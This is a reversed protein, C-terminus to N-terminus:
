KMEDCAKSITAIAFRVRRSILSRRHSWGCRWRQALQSAFCSACKCVPRPGSRHRSHSCLVVRLSGQYVEARAAFRLLWSVLEHESGRALVSVAETSVAVWTKALTTPCLHGCRHRSHHRWRCCCAVASRKGCHAKVSVSLEYERSARVCVCVCVCVYVCVCQGCAV